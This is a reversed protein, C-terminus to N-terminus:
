PKPSRLLRFAAPTNCNRFVDRVSRQVELQFLSGDPGPRPKWAAVTGMGTLRRHDLATCFGCFSGRLPVQFRFFFPGTYVATREPPWMLPQM